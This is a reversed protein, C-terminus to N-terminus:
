PETTLRMCRTYEYQRLGLAQYISSVVISPNKLDMDIFEFNFYIDISCQVIDLTSHTRVRIRLCLMNYYQLTLEPRNLIFRGVFDVAAERVLTSHDNGRIEIMKQIDSQVNDM